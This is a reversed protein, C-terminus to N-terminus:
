GVEFRGYDQDVEDVSNNVRKAEANFEATYISRKHVINICDKALRGRDLSLKEIASDIYHGFEHCKIANM